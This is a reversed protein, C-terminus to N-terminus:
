KTSGPIRVAWDTSVDFVTGESTKERLSRPIFDNPLVVDCRVDDPLVLLQAWNVKEPSLEDVISSWTSGHFQDSEAYSVFVNESDDVCLRDITAAYCCDGNRNKREAAPLDVSTWAEGDTSHYMFNVPAEAQWESTLFYGLKSSHQFLIPIGSLMRHGDWSEETAQGLMWDGDRAVIVSIFSNTKCTYDPAGLFWM